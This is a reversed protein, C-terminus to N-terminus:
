RREALDVLRGLPSRKHERRGGHLVYGGREPAPHCAQRTSSEREGNDSRKEADHRLTPRM